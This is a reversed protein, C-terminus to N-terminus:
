NLFIWSFLFFSFSFFENSKSPYFLLLMDLENCWVLFKEVSVNWETKKLGNCWIKMIKIHTCWSIILGQFNGAAKEAKEPQRNGESGVTSELRCNTTLSERALVLMDHTKSATVCLLFPATALVPFYSGEM